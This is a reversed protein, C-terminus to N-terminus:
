YEVGVKKLAMMNARYNILHPPVSHTKGHRALFVIEEGYINLIDLEVQGYKTEITEKFGEEGANYVGTGGIIAKKM